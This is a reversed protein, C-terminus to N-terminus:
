IFKTPAFLAITNAEFIENNFQFFHSQKTQTTKEREKSDNM